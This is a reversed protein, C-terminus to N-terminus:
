CLHFYCMLTGLVQLTRIRLHNLCSCIQQALMPPSLLSPYFSYMCNSSGAFLKVSIHKMNFEFEDILLMKVYTDEHNSYSLNGLCPGRTGLEFHHDDSQKVYPCNCQTGSESRPFFFACTNRRTPIADCMEFLQVGLFTQLTMEWGDLDGFGRFIEYCRTLM